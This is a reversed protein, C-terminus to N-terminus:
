AGGAGPLTGTNSEDGLKRLLRVVRDRDFPKVIFDIAGDRISDMLSQKQDLATVVIVRAEPDGARIRRLAELGGMVPMVLDMTVLDPRLQAYLAVAEEGNAAEGAVAWGAEAAVDRILRRMFLADDVVLLRKPAAAAGANAGESMSM